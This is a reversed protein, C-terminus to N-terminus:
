KPWLESLEIKRIRVDQLHSHGNGAQGCNYALLLSKGHFQMAVYAYGHDPEKELMIGGTLDWTKGNDCSRMIVLPTRSSTTPLVPYLRRNLGNWVAYLFGTAPDRKISMPSLPSPFNLDPVAQSWTNGNDCSVSRFQFGLETRLWLLLKGPDLEILGPEQFGNRTEAQFDPALMTDSELWTKGNDDSFLTFVIGPRTESGSTQWAPKSGLDQKVTRWPHFALPLIIRGSSLQVARDNNMVYYGDHPILRQAASWNEGDDSSTCMLPNCTISGNSLVRKELYFLRTSGDRLRLLSVSEIKHADGHPIIIGRDKWTKGDDDSFVEAIDGPAHDHSINGSVRCYIFRIRGKKTVLFAGGGNRANGPGSMIDFQIGGPYYKAQPMSPKQPACFATAAAMSMVLPVITKKM